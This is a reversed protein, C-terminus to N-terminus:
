EPADKPRRLRNGLGFIQLPHRVRVRREAAPAVAVAGVRVLPPDVDPIARRIRLMPQWRATYKNRTLDPIVIRKRLGSVAGPKLKEEVPLSDSPFIAQVRRREVRNPIQQDRLR